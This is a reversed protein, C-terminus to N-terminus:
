FSVWKLKGGFKREFDSKQKHESDHSEISGKLATTEKKIAARIDDIAKEKIARRGKHVAELKKSEEDM